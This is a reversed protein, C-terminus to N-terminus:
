LGYKFKVLQGLIDKIYIKFYKQSRSTKPTAHLSMWQAAHVRQNHCVPKPVTTSPSQQEPAHLIKTGGDPISSMDGVTCPPNKVVPGGPFDRYCNSIKRMWSEIWGSTANLKKQDPDTGWDKHCLCKKNTFPLEEYFTGWIPSAPPKRM